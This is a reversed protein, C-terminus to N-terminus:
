DDLARKREEFEAEIFGDALDDFAADMAAQDPDQVRERFAVRGIVASIFLAARPGQATDRVAIQRDQVYLGLQELAEPLAMSRNLLEEAEAPTDDSPFM